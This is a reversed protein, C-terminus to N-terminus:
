RHITLEGPGRVRAELVLRTEADDFGPDVAAHRDRDLGFVSAEGWKADATVSVPVDRPLIVTLEGVGVSASVRTEGRPLTVDRLDLELAGFGLRYERELDSAVQPREVREGFGGHRHAVAFTGAVALALAVALIALVALVGRRSARVALVIAGAVLLWFVLAGPWFFFPGHGDPGPGSLAFILFLALLAMGIVLWPRDRNSRLTEALVSEDRDEAPMVLAAAVYLLIGTGGAFSLAVFLVRYVAPNLGFYDALGGCVGALWRNSRSRRLSKREDGEPATGEPPAGEVSTM